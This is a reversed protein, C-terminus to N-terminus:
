EYSMWDDYCTECIWHGRISYSEDIVVRDRCDECLIWETM